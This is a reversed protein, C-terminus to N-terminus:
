HVIQLDRLHRYLTTKERPKRSEVGDRVYRFGLGGVQVARGTMPRHLERAPAEKAKRRGGRGLGLRSLLGKGSEGENGNEADPAPVEAAVIGPADPTPRIQLGTSTGSFMQHEDVYVEGTFGNASSVGTIGPETLLAYGVIAHGTDDRILPVPTTPRTLAAAADLGEGGEIGWNNAATSPATPVHAVEIWLLNKRMLYTAVTALAADTGVVVIRLPESPKQPAPQPAGLHDVKKQKSIEEPTPATDVPLVDKALDDIFALEKRTPIMAVDHLAYAPPAPTAPASPTSPASTSWSQRLLQSFAPVDPGCQLVVIRMPSCELADDAIGPTSTPSHGCDNDDTGLPAVLALAFCGINETAADVVDDLGVTAIVGAVGNDNATLLVLQLQKRRTYQRFVSHRNDTVATHDVELRKEVLNIAEFSATCFGGAQANGAIGVHNSRVVLRQVAHGLAEQTLASDAGSAATDARRIGVLDATRAQTDLVNQILRNQALLNLRRQSLLVLNQDLQVVAASDVRIFDKIVEHAEGITQARHNDVRLKLEILSQIGALVDEHLAALGGHEVDVVAGVREHGGRVWGSTTGAHAGADARRLDSRHQADHLGVGGADTSARERRLQEVLPALVELGGATLDSDVGATLAATTPVIRHQSAVGRADVTERIQEDGLQVDQGTDTLNRNTDSVVNIAHTVVFHWEGLRLEVVSDRNVLGHRRPVFVDSAAAGEILQRVLGLIVQVSQLLEGASANRVDTNTRTTVLGDNNM